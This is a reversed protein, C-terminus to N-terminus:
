CVFLQPDLKAAPPLQEMVTDNVGLALPAREAVTETESLATPLGCVAPSEPVPTAVAGIAEREGPLKANALWANPVVLALWGNVSVFEPLAVNFMEAIPAVPSKASVFLQPELRVAPACQLMLTVNVGVAPPVRVPETLTESSAAPFGCLAVSLPVPAPPVGM